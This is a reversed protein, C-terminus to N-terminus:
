ILSPGTCSVGATGTSWIEEGAANYLVVNRDNEAVLSTAETSGYVGSRWLVVTRTCCCCRETGYLVLHKDGQIKLGDNVTRGHTMTAWIPKNNRCYVVLNGDTQMILFVGM